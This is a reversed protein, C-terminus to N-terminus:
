RGESSERGMRAGPRRVQRRRGPARGRARARAAELRGGGDTLKSLCIYQGPHLPSRAHALRRVAVRLV